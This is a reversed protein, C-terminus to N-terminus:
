SNGDHSNEMAAADGPHQAPATGSDSRAVQRIGSRKSIGPGSSVVKLKANRVTSRPYRKIM